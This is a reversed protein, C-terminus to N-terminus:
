GLTPRESGSEFAVRPIEVEFEQAEQLRKRASVSHIGGEFYHSPVILHSRGDSAILDAALLRDDTGNKKLEYAISGQQSEEGVKLCCKWCSEISKLGEEGVGSRVIKPRGSTFLSIEYGSFIEAPLWYYYHPKGEIPEVFDMQADVAGGFWVPLEEVGEFFATDSSLEEDSAPKQLECIDEDTYGLGKLYARGSVSHIAGSTMNIDRESPADVYAIEKKTLHEKHVGLRRILNQMRESVKNLKRLKVIYDELQESTLEFKKVVFLFWDFSAKALPCSGDKGIKFFCELMLNFSRLEEFHSAGPKQFVLADCFQRRDTYLQDISLQMVYMAMFFDDWNGSEVKDLLINVCQWRQAESLAGFISPAHELLCELGEQYGKELVLSLPTRNDPGFKPDAGGELLMRALNSNRCELAIYLPTEGDAAQSNINVGELSLWYRSIENTAYFCVHFIFPLYKGRFREHCKTVPEICPPTFKHVNAGTLPELILEFNLDSLEGYFYLKLMMFSTKLHELRGEECAILMTRRVTPLGMDTVDSFENRQAFLVIDPEELVSPDADRALMQDYLERDEIMKPILLLPVGKKRHFDVKQNPDFGKEIFFLVLSRLFHLEDNGELINRFDQVSNPLINRFSGLILLFVHGLATTGDHNKAGRDVGRDLIYTLVKICSAYNKDDFGYILLTTLTFDEAKVNKLSANFNDIGFNRNTRNEDAAHKLMSFIDDTDRLNIAHALASVVVGESQPQIEPVAFPNDGMKLLKLRIESRKQKDALYHVYMLPSVPEAGFHSIGRSFDLKSNKNLMKLASDPHNNKLAKIIKKILKKDKDSDGSNSGSGVSASGRAGRSAGGGKKKRAKKGM